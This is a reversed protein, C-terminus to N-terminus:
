AGAAMANAKNEISQRKRKWQLDLFAEMQEDASMTKSSLTPATLSYRVEHSQGLLEIGLSEMERELPTGPYISLFNFACPVQPFRDILDMIKNVSIQDEGPLGLIFNLQPHIGLQLMYEMKERFGVLSRKGKGFRLQVEMDGSEVGFLVNVCGAEHLADIVEFDICDLRTNCGWEVKGAFPADRIAKCLSLARKKNVTFIDDDFSFQTINYTEWYHTLEELISENSRFRIRRGTFTATSCFSCTFPCGRASMIKPYGIHYDGSNILGERMDPWRIEDLEMQTRSWGSSTPEGKDDRWAIGPLNRFDPTGEGEHDLMREVFPPFSLEGEGRIVARIHSHERLITEWEYSAHPGGLVIAAEPFFLHAQMAMFLANDITASVATIGIIKPKVLNAYKTFYAAQSPRDWGVLPSISRMDLIQAPSLGYSELAKSIYCLGMAPGAPGVQHDNVAPPDILLVPPYAKEVPKIAGFAELEALRAELNVHDMGRASLIPKTAAILAEKTQPTSFFSFLTHDLADLFRYDGLDPNFLGWIQDDVKHLYFRNDKRLAQSM